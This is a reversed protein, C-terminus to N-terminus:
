ENNWNNNNNNHFNNNQCWRGGGNRNEGNPDESYLANQTVLQARMREMTQIMTSMLTAMDKTTNEQPIHEQIPVTETEDLPQEPHNDDEVQRLQNVIQSVIANALQYRLADMSTETECLEPHAERFLSIFEPWSQGVSLNRIWRCLDSRFVLQSAVVMYGLDVLQEPTYPNGAMEAIERLDDVSTYIIDIPKDIVYQM